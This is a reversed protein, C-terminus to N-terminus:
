AAVQLDAVAMRALQVLQADLAEGEVRALRYLQTLLETGMLDAPHTHHLRHLVLQLDTYYRGGLTGATWSAAERCMDPNSRYGVALEAVREDAYEAEFRPDEQNDLSRQANRSASNLATHDM